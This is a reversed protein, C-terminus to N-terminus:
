QLDVGQFCNGKNINDETYSTILVSDKLFSLVQGLQPNNAIM